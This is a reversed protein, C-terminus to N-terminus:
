NIKKAVSKKIIFSITGKSKIGTEKMIKAYSMGSNHMDLIADHDHKKAFSTAIMSARIRIEYPKDMQNESATGIRINDFTNNIKNGDLHRVQIGNKFIQIGYKQYAMLRHVDIHVVNKRYRIGFYFYGSKHKLQKLIRGVPSFVNIGDTNYGIEKAYILAQSRKGLTINDDM